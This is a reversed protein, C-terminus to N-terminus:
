VQLPMNSHLLEHRAEHQVFSKLQASILGIANM